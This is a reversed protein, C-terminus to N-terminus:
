SAMEANVEDALVIVKNDRVELVGEGAAQLIHMGDAEDRYTIQGVTLTTVMPAHNALVGLYGLAAPVVVSTVTGEFIKAKPTLIELTFTKAM